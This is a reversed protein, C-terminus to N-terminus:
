CDIISYIKTYTIKLGDITNATLICNRYNDWPVVFHTDMIGDNLLSIVYNLANVTFITNTDKVRHVSITNKPILAEDMIPLNINYSCILENENKIDRLVFIKNFTLSYCAKIESLTSQLRKKKTFTCLLQISNNIDM